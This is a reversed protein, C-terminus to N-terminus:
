PGIAVMMARAESIPVADLNGSSGRWTRALWPLWRGDPSVKPELHSANGVLARRAILRVQGTGTTTHFRAKRGAGSRTTRLAMVAARAVVRGVRRVGDDGEGVGWAGCRRRASCL